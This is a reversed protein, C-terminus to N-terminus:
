GDAKGQRRSRCAPRRGNPIATKWAGSPIDARASCQSRKSPSSAIPDAAIPSSRAAGRSTASIGNWRKSRFTSPVPCIGADFEDAPRVDLVTVLDNQMRSVLDERSVPELADRANFYDAKIRDIEGTVQGDAHDCEGRAIESRSVPQARHGGVEADDIRHQAQAGRDKQHAIRAVM